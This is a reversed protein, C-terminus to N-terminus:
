FFIKTLEYPVWKSLKEGKGNAEFASHGYFPQRSNEPLKEHLLILKLHHSEIQENDVELLWGSHEEDELSGDGKCFKKFWWHVTRKNATGPGFTKNINCTTEAAKRGM